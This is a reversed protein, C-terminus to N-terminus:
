SLFYMKLHGRNKVEIEGRYECPFEDKIQDYTTESLNIRGPASKSEMRSAINVTDGWIDYQWKKIGVIGAVVPGTHIGIRIDFHSLGDQESKEKRVLEIMERAANVVNRAHTKNATPLGCACMYADGITKIKELGYKTTIEDFGKFYFDISKVLQEPEVQEAYKSFEVFDTFLVTVHDFKVADVKGKLKLEKATEAPLINLLLSESKREERLIARYYRYLIGLMLITMGLMIFVSLLINRQNKKQQNLLNVETQKQSVEYDTRLDALKQVTKLNNLSDRYAIHSKYYKYAEGMNGAKEHLESLKLSAGSIQEKLGYEQALALSRRAYDLATTVEGKLQYMDAMSLLYACIPYNDGLEELINIAENINKGALTNIGKKAYVMGTNGLSYGKGSLHNTKDFIITAEKFHLLASDYEKHHLYEDGANLIASGLAVSDDGARLVAIAKNYYLMAIAHNDAVTYIDAIAGYASGEGTTYKAKRAVEVSKFYVALAEELHGTVRRNNGKQLYGRFLYLDNGLEKSLSILEEAYQLGQQYDKMENFALNRLLELKATDTLLNDKYIKALSDAVKQDQASAQLLICCIFGIWLYYARRKFPNM